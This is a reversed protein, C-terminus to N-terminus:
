INQTMVETIRGDDDRNFSTVASDILAEKILYGIIVGIPIGVTIGVFLILGDNEM